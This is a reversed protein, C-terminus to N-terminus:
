DQPPSAGTGKQFVPPYLVKEAVVEKLSNFLKEKENQFFDIDIDFVSLWFAPYVNLFSVYTQIDSINHEQLALFIQESVVLVEKEKHFDGLLNDTSSTQQFQENMQFTFGEMFKEWEKDLLCEVFFSIDKLCNLPIEYQFGKRITAVTGSNRKEFFWTRNFPDTLTDIQVKIQPLLGLKKCQQLTGWFAEGPTM